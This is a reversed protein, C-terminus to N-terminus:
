DLITRMERGVNVGAQILRAKLGDSAEEGAMHCIESLLMETLVGIRGMRRTKRADTDLTEIPPYGETITQTTLGM